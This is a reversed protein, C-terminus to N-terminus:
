EVVKPVAFCDEIAGPANALVAVRDGGDCVRDARRPLDIAAVSAMPAVGDTDVAALQEVWGLIQSLERAVADLQDDSVRLRALQCITRVTSRDLSM